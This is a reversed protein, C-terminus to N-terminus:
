NDDDYDFYDMDDTLDEPPLHGLKQDSKPINSVNNADFSNNFPNQYPNNSQVQQLWDDINDNSKQIEPM